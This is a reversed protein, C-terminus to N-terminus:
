IKGFNNGGGKLAWFLDTNTSNNAHALTGDALVIQTSILQNVSLTGFYQFKRVEFDVVNDCALGYLDALWTLGGLIIHTM